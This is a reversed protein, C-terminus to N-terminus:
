YGPTPYSTFHPIKPSTICVIIRQIFLYIEKIILYINCYVQLKLLLLFNLISSQKSIEQFELFKFFLSNKQCM